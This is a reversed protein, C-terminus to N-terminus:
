AGASGFSVKPRRTKGIHAEAAERIVKDVLITLERRVAGQTFFALIVLAGFVKESCDGLANSVKSQQEVEYRSIFRRCQGALAIEDERFVEESLRTFEERVFHTDLPLDELEAQTSLETLLDTAFGKLGAIGSRRSEQIPTEVGSISAALDEYIPLERSIMLCCDSIAKRGLEDLEGSLLWPYAEEVSEGLNPWPKHENKLRESASNWVKEWSLASEPGPRESEVILRAQTLLISLVNLLSPIRAEESELIHLKEDIWDAQLRLDFQPPELEELLKDEVKTNKGRLRRISIPERDIYPEHMSFGIIKEELDKWKLSDSESRLITLYVQYLCQYHTNESQQALDIGGSKCYRAVDEFETRALAELSMNCDSIIVNKIRPVSLLYRFFLALWEDSIDLEGDHRPLEPLQSLLKNLAVITPNRSNNM